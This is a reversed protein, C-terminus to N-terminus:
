MFIANNYNIVQRLTAILSATPFCRLSSVLEVLVGQEDAAVEAWAVGVAALFHTSHVTALPSLLELVTARVAKPSGLLWVPAPGQLAKWLSCLAVILRPTLSLLARRAAQLQQEQADGGGGGGRGEGAGLVHALAAVLSPTAQAPSSPFPTTTVGGATQSDLLCYSLLQGLAELLTLLYDAPVPGRGEQDQLASVNALNTWIQSAAATVVSTLAPGLFPLTSTLM